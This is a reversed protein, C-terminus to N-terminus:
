LRFWEMGCKTLLVMTESLQNDATQYHKWYDTLYSLVHSIYRLTSELRSRLVMGAFRLVLVM